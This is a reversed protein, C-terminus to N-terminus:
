KTWLLLSFVSAVNKKECWCSIKKKRITSMFLDLITHFNFSFWITSVISLERCGLMLIWIRRVTRKVNGITDVPLIQKLILLKKFQHDNGKKEKGKYKIWAHEQLSFNSVLRERPNFLEHSADSIKDLLYKMMVKTFRDTFM